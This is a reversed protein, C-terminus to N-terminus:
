QKANNQNKDTENMLSAKLFSSVRLAINQSLQALLQKQLAKKAMVTSYGSQLVNYSSQASTSESLLIKGNKSLTYDSRIGITIRTPINESNYGQESIVSETNHVSLTYVKESKRQGSLLSTLNQRMIQGSHEAIPAVYVKSMEETISEDAQPLFGEDTAYLPTFGCATVLMCLCVCLLKQSM